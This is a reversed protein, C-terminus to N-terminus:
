LQRLHWSISPSIAENIHLHEFRTSIYVSHHITQVRSGNAADAEIGPYQAAYQHMLLDCSLRDLDLYEFYEDDGLQQQLQDKQM